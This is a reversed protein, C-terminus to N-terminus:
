SVSSKAFQRLIQSSPHASLSVLKNVLAVPILASDYMDCRLEAVHTLLLQLNPIDSASPEKRQTPVPISVVHMQGGPTKFIVKHGYYSTSAYPKSPDEVGPSIYRYIYQGGLILITGPDMLPQIERAHDVFAGSKELGVLLLSQKAQLWQVLARMPKHLRATQGFFGTPRDMIFLVKGLLDPHSSSLHRIIHITILHEIVGALYGCIGAAGVEEDIVEHFRFIDTLYLLGGTSPCQFTGATSMDKEALDVSEGNNLPNSSLVWVRDENTRESASKYRAFIFWKLTDLLSKDEGLKENSLFDFIAVRVTELLSKCSKSRVGKTPLAFKLREINKLRAIDEPAIFHSRDLKQLDERAFRLAGFQFFHLAASPFGARVLAEAYGGDVAVVDSVPSDATPTFAICREALSVDQMPPPVWLTELAQKVVPDNILHHHSAKSAAEFPRPGIKSYGM